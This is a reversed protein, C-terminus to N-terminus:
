ALNNFEKEPTSTHTKVLFNITGENTLLAKEIISFDNTHLQQQLANRLEHETISYSRMIDWRVIGNKILIVPAGVFFREFTPFYFSLTGLFINLLILFIITGLIPLFLERQEIAAASASGLIIFLPFNYSTRTGIFKRNLRIFAITVVYIVFARVCMGALSNSHELAVTIADIIFNWM